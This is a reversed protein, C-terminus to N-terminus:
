SSRKTRRRGFLFTMGTGLLILTGPEPVVGRVTYREGSDATFQPNAVAIGGIKPVLGSLVLTSFFDANGAGPGSGLFPTTGETDGCEEISDCVGITGATSFMFLTLLFEDGFTFPVNVTFVDGSLSTSTTFGQFDQGEFPATGGWLV